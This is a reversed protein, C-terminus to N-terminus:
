ETEKVTVGAGLNVTGTGGSMYIGVSADGLNINSDHTVTGGASYIGATYSGGTINGTTNSINVNQTGYIGMLMNNIDSASGM